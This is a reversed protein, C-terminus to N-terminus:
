LGEYMAVYQKAASEWGFDSKMGNIARNTFGTKGWEAKARGVAGLLAYSSYESFTYGKSEPVTDLLGGVHRVIPVSGYRMAILQALGCPEFLSPMAFADAGAYIRHALSENFGNNFYVNERGQQFWHLASEMGADGSGLIVVNWDYAIAELAAFFISLGKQESLRSIM